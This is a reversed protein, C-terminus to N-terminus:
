DKKKRRIKFLRARRSWEWDTKSANINNLNAGILDSWRLSVDSLNIGSLDFGRLDAYALSPTFITKGNQDIQYSFATEKGGKSKFSSDLILQSILTDLENQPRYKVKIITNKINTTSSM